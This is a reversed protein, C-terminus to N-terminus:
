FLVKVFEKVRLFYDNMDDAISDALQQNNNTVVHITAGIDPVDVMSFWFFCLFMKIEIKGDELREM